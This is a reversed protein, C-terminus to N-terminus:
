AGPNKAKGLRQPDPRSGGTGGFALAAIHDAGLGLDVVQWVGHGAVCASGNARSLPVEFADLGIRLGGGIAKMVAEKRTWCTLFRKSRQSATGPASVFAAEGSRFCSEALAAAEPINRVREADVGVQCYTSVCILALDEAHTVNFCVRRGNSGDGLLPKGAADLEICVAGPPEQVYWGLLRRLAGRTVAFRRRDREFHYKWMREREEPSLLAALAGGTTASVRLNVRWVEIANADDTYLQEIL